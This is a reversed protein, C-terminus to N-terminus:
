GKLGLGKVIESVMRASPAGGERDLCEQAFREREARLPDTGGLVVETVFREIKESGLSQYHARLARRGFENETARRDHRFVYLVPRGTYLYEATFSGCDHIMADSAAFLAAYEGDAVFTNDLEEWFRYYEDTKERGWLEELRSRLVPHPKFAISVQSRYKVALEKMFSCIECFASSTYCNAARTGVSHHPAWIIRKRCGTKEPPWAAAAEDASVGLLKEEFPYGCSVANYGHAAGRRIADSVHFRSPLFIRWACSSLRTTVPNGNVSLSYPVFCPLAYSMKWPYWADYVAGRYPQAYFVLDPKLSKLDIWKKAVSDYGEVFRYGNRECFEGIRKQAALLSEETPCTGPNMASVVLPEFLRSKKLEDHFSAYKWMAPEMVLFVVRAAGRERISAITKRFVMRRYLAAGCNERVARIVDRPAHLVKKIFGM